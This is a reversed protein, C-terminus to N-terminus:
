AEAKRDNLWERQVLTRMYLRLPDIASPWRCPGYDVEASSEVRVSVTFGRVCDDGQAMPEPLEEPLLRSVKVWEPDTLHVTHPQAM